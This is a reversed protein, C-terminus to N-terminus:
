ERLIYGSTLNKIDLFSKGLEKPCHYKSKKQFNLKGELNKGIKNLKANEKLFMLSFFLFYFM